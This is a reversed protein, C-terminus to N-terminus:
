QYIGNQNCALTAIPSPDLTKELQKIMQNSSDKYIKSFFKNQTELPMDVFQVTIEPNTFSFYQQFVDICGGGSSYTEGGWCDQELSWKAVLSYADVKEYWANEQKWIIPHPANDEMTKEYEAVLIKAEKRGPIECNRYDEWAVDTEKKTKDASYLEHWIDRELDCDSNPDEETPINPRQNKQSYTEAFQYNENISRMNDDLFRSYEEVLHWDNLEEVLEPLTSTLLAKARPVETNLCKDFDSECAILFITLSLAIFSRKMLKYVKNATITECMM